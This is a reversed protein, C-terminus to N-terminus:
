NLFSEMACSIIILIVGATYTLLYQRAFDQLANKNYVRRRRGTFYKLSIYSGEASLAALICLVPIQIVSQPFMTSIIYWGGKIGFAEVLMASSFGMTFGKVTPLLPAMVALPPFLPSLFLPALLIFWTKMCKLFSSSFNLEGEGSFFGTMMNILQQKGEGNMFVEFFAFFTM